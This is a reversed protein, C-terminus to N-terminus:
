MGATMAFSNPSAEPSNRAASIPRPTSRNTRVIMMLMRARPTTSRDARRFLPAQHGGHGYRLLLGVQALRLAPPAGLLRIVVTRITIENTTTIMGSANTRNVTIALPAEIM